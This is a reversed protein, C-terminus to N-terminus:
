EYWASVVHFHSVFTSFRGEFALEVYIECYDQDLDTQILFELAISLNQLQVLTWFCSFNSDNTIYFQTESPTQVTLVYALFSCCCLRDLNSLLM